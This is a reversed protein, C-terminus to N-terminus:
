GHKRGNGNGNGGSPKGAALQHADEVVMATEADDYNAPLPIQASDPALIIMVPPIAQGAGDVHMHREIFDGCSRALLESAKVRDRLEAKDDKMVKSWWEQRAERRSILDSNRVRDRALIAEMVEPKRLLLCGVRKCNGPGDKYGAAKAAAQADGAYLDIFAQWRPNLPYPEARVTHPM